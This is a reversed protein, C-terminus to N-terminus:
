VKLGLRGSDRDERNIKEKQRKRKRGGFALIIIESFPSNWYVIAEM